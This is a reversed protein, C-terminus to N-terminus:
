IAETLPESIIGFATRVPAHFQSDELSGSVWGVHEYHRSELWGAYLHTDFYKRAFVNSEIDHITVKHGVRPFPNIPWWITKIM